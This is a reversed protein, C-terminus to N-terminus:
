VKVLCDFSIALIFNLVFNQNRIIENLLHPSLHGLILYKLMPYSWMPIVKSKFQKDGHMKSFTVLITFSGTAYIPLKLFVVKFYNAQM